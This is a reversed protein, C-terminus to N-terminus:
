KVIDSGPRKLPLFKDAKTISAKALPEPTKALDARKIKM